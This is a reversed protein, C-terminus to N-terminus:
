LVRHYADRLQPLKHAELHGSRLLEITRAADMTPYATELHHDLVLEGVDDRAATWRRRKATTPTWGRLTTADGSIPWPVGDAAMTAARAVTLWCPAVTPLQMLDIVM